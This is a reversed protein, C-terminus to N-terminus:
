GGGTKRAQAARRADNWPKGSAWGIKGRMSAPGLKLNAFSHGRLSNERSSVPQLHDPNCCGRCRCLHDLQLGAPIPGRFYQYIIRHLLHRVGAFCVYRYGASGPKNPHSWCGDGQIIILDLVKEVTNKQGRVGRQAM